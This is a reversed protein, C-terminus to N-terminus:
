STEDEGFYKIKNEFKPVLVTASYTYISLNSDQVEGTFYVCSKNAWWRESENAMTRYRDAM